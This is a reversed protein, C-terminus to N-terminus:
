DEDLLSRLRYLTELADRPTLTDPDIMELAEVVPHPGPFLALQAAAEGDDPVRGPEHDRRELAELRARAREIVARPVGARRAVAIGFSRSAAGERVAHMFVVEEGHEVADLRVNAVGPVDEALATLEFYHTAFLTFARNTSALHEAASFALAMGDYTSTGRGIEDVIVLSHETAHHLINAIESMEVMFTSQGGALNDSAGVRSYIGDLPGFRARSAPVFSGAHALLAILASQRMYTSKGGMNPGTVVLLRRGDDLDLDNAVFPADQFQEVLLHRGGEIAIGPEASFEPRVLQLAQAREAFAGLVDLEALALANRQLAPVDETVRELLAEYLAKERRLAKESAGLIRAEFAKLESTVYREAAKLTQRRTYDDPVQAAHARSVEIYYGHVRNYGVKLQAIGSREREREALAALAADADEHTDRLEDLEADYGRAIVGGDRILQPPSEVLAASLLEFLGPLEALEERLTALRPSTEGALLARVAPVAGLTERLHALDRPRATGLAIRATVREVDRVTGLRERLAELDLSRILADVALHRLALTAQDRLPRTLWRRMLRAGMATRCTDLVAVLTHRENGSLADVLELNRRTAADLAVADRGREVALATVHPLEGGQTDRCYQLLAGAASLAATLDACGYGDLGDVGFHECLRRVAGAAEFRWPPLARVTEKRGRPVLDREDEDVLLEAPSLRELEAELEAADAPESVLFRGGGLDLWALGLRGGTRCLAAVVTDRRADLLAEDTVTGPTLVRTVRREVPGRSTAPDGIQECVAVSEGLRLLRALYGDAAHAPVGAMPIPEGASAGRATLTLDLLKSARRADDFFLEYFDGMRYFLLVDPHEAKLGLYQQMVPTHETKAPAM